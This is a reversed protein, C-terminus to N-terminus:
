ILQARPHNYHSLGGLSLTLQHASQVVPWYCPSPSTADPARYIKASLCRLRALGARQSPRRAAELSPRRGPAMEFITAGLLCLVACEDARGDDTLEPAKYVSGPRGALHSVNLASVPMATDFDVLHETGLEDLLVNRPQLDLYPMILSSDAFVDVTVLCDFKRAGSLRKIELRDSCVGFRVGEACSM